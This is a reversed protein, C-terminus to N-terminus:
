SKVSTPLVSDQYGLRWDWGLHVGWVKESLRPTPELGMKALSMEQLNSHVPLWGPPLQNATLRPFLPIRSWEAHDM